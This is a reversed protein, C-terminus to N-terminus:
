VYIFFFVFLILLFVWFYFILLFSSIMESAKEIGNNWMGLESKHQKWKKKERLMIWNKRNKNPRVCQVPWSSMQQQKKRRRRTEPKKKERERKFIMEKEREHMQRSESIKNSDIWIFNTSKILHNVVVCPTISCATMAFAMSIM